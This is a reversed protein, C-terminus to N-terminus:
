PRTGSKIVGAYLTLLRVLRCAHNRLQKSPLMSVLTVTAMVLTVTLLSLAAALAPLAAGVAFGKFLM